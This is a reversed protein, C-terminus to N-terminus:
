AYKEGKMRELREIESKCTVCTLSLSSEVRKLPVDFDGCTDCNGDWEELRPLLSALLGLRHWKQARKAIAEKVAAESTSRDCPDSGKCADLEVSSRRSLETTLELAEARLKEIVGQREELFIQNM